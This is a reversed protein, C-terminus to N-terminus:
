NLEAKRLANDFQQKFSADKLYIEFSQGTKLSCVIVSKKDAVICKKCNPKLRDIFSQAYSANKAVESATESNDWPKDRCAWRITQILTEKIEQTSVFEIAKIVTEEDYKKCIWKKQKDTLDLSSLCSYFSAVVASRLPVPSSPAEQQQEKKVSPREQPITKRQTSEAANSTEANAIETLMLSEKFKPRESIIYTMRNFGNSGISQERKMYGAKILEKFISYVKDRKMHPDVHNIVQQVNIEWNDKNSLLYTLLWRANPSISADRILANSIQAYPNQEDHPCRQITSM